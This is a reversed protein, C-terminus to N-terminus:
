QRRMRGDATRGDVVIWQRVEALEARKRIRRGLRGFGTRMEDVLIMSEDALLLQLRNREIGAGNGGRGVDDGFQGDIGGIGTLGLEM